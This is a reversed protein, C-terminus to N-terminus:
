SPPVQNGNGNNEKEKDKDKNNNNDKEGDKNNDQEKTERVGAVQGDTNLYNNYAYFGGGLAVTLSAATAIVGVGNFGMGSFFKFM